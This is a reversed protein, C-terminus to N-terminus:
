IFFQKKFRLGKILRFEDLKGRLFNCKRCALVLRIEGTCNPKLRKKRELKNILHDITALNDPHYNENTENPLVTKIGCYKCLGDNETWLRERRKKLDRM